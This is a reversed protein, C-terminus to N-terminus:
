SYFIIIKFRLRPALSLVVLSSPSFSRALSLADCALLFPAASLALPCACAPLALALSCAGGLALSLNKKLHRQGSFTVEAHM